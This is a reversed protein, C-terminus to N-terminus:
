RYVELIESLRAASDEIDDQGACAVSPISCIEITNLIIADQSNFYQVWWVNRTGTSTIRCNGYGRSLIILQGAGLHGHLFALDAESHPLLSLNIVHPLAGEEFQSLQDEIESVLAPANLLGDREDSSCPALTERSTARAFDIAILPFSGVEIYDRVLQGNENSVRIRWIGAFVSEQAQARDGIIM